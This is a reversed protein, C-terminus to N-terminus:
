VLLYPAIIQILVLYIKQVRGELFLTRWDENCLGRDLRKQVNPAGQRGNTWTYKPGSAGIDMLKCANINEM